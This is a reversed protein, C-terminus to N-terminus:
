FSCKRNKTQLFGACPLCKSEQRTRIIANHLFSVLVNPDSKFCRGTKFASCPALGSYFAPVIWSDLGSCIRTKLAGHPSSVSTWDM